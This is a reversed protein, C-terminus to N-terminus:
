AAMPRWVFSVNSQLTIDATIGNRFEARVEYVGSLASGSLLIKVDGDGDTASDSVEIISSGVDAGVIIRELIAPKTSIVKDTGAAAIYTIM